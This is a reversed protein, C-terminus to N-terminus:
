THKIKMGVGKTGKIEDVRFAKLFTKRAIQQLVTNKFISM